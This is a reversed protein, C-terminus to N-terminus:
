HLQTFFLKGSYPRLVKSWDEDYVSLLETADTPIYKAVKSARVPKASLNIVVTLKSKGDEAIKDYVFLQKDHPLYLKFQGYVATDKYEKRLAMARQYFYWISNEDQLANEVNVEPYNPNVTYWPEVTSFGAYKKGNWQVPTRACDRAATHAVKLIHKDSFGFKRMLDRVCFTSVDKFQAWPDTGKPYKDFYLATM